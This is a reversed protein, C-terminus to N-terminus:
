DHRSSTAVRAVLAQFDPDSQLAAFHPDLHASLFNSEHRAYSSALYSLADHKRGAMSYMTAAIYESEQGRDALSGFQRALTVLMAPEGGHAFARRGADTAALLNDDKTLIAAQKMEDLYARNDHTLLYADALYVHTSLFGDDAGELQRLAAIAEQQRGSLLLILDRDALISVSTPQLRRAEDIQALADSYRASALMSTAYWHHAEVDNPNLQLARRFEQEARPLDWDWYHLAFALSRHAESSSPDLEVAKRAAAVARPFAENDPMRTYERLLLYCDALGAYPAAYQPDHVISQTFYDVAQNLSSGTRMNWYYRGKLYLDAAQPDPTYSRNKAAHTESASATEASHPKQLYAAFGAALIVLLIGASTWIGISVINSHPGWFPRRATSSDESFQIDDAALERHAFFPVSKTSISPTPQAVSPLDAAAPEIVYQLAPPLLHANKAQNTNLWLELEHVYAFVGGREGGPVRHIPLARESEWRKVTRADRGFFSAIEKWSDLRPNKAAADRPYTAM